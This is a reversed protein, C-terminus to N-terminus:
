SGLQHKEELASELLSCTGYIVSTSDGRVFVSLFDRYRKGVFVHGFVRSTYQTMPTQKPLDLIPLCTAQCVSLVRAGSCPCAVGFFM